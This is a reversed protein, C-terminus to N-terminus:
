FMQLFSTNDETAEIEHWSNAKLIVPEATSDLIAEENETRVCLKGSLCLILHQNDHQYKVLGESSNADFRIIQLNNYSFRYTGKIQTVAM